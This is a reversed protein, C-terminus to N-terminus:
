QKQVYFKLVKLVLTVALYSGKYAVSKCTVSCADVIGLKWQYSCIYTDPASLTITNPWHTRLDGMIGTTSCFCLVYPMEHALVTLSTILQNSYMHHEWVTNFREIYFISSVVSPALVLRGQLDKKMLTEYPALHTTIFNSNISSYKHHDRKQAAPNLKEFALNRM